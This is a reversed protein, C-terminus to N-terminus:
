NLYTLLIFFLIIVIMIFYASIPNSKIEVKGFDDAQIINIDTKNKKGFILPTYNNEFLQKDAGNLRANIEKRSFAISKINNLLVHQSYSEEESEKM